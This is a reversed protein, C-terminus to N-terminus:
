NHMIIIKYYVLICVATISYLINNMSNPISISRHVTFLLYKFCSDRYPVNKGIGLHCKLM